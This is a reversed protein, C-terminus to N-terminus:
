DISLYSFYWDISLYGWDYSPNFFILIRM